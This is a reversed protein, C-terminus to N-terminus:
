RLGIRRRWIWEMCLLLAAAALPWWPREGARSSLAGSPSQAALALPVQRDHPLLEALTPITFPRQSAMASGDTRGNARYSWTGSELLPGDVTREGGGPLAVSSDSWVAAGASDRVTLVLDTVGAAIRWGIRDRGAERVEILTVPTGAEDELAGLIFTPDAPDSVWYM